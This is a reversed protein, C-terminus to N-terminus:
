SVGATDYLRHLRDAFWSTLRHMPV